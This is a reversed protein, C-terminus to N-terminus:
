NRLAFIEINAQRLRGSLMLAIENLIKAKIGPSSV